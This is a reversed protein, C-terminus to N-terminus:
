YGNQVLATMCLAGALMCLLSCTVVFVAGYGGFTKNLADAFPGEKSIAERHDRWSKFSYIVLLITSGLVLFFSLGFFRISYTLLWGTKVANRGFDTTAMYLGAFFALGSFIALVAMFTVSLKVVLASHHAASISNAHFDGHSM